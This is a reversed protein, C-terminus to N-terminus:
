RWYISAFPLETLSELNKKTQTYACCTASDTAEGLVKRKLLIYKDYRFIHLLM